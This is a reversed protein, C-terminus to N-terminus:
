GVFIGELYSILRDQDAPQSRYGVYGDPRVLYACEARAGFRTHLEAGPDRLPSGDWDLSAPPEAGPTVILTHVVEGYRARVARALRALARHGDPSAAHSTFLLLTHVTGQLIQLPAAQGALPHLARPRRRPRRPRPGSRLDRPRDARGRRPPPRAPLLPAVHEAVAPSSRYDLALGGLIAAAREEIMPLRGALGFLQDRLRQALPSRLGLARAAYRTAADTIGLTASAVPLREAQYSDLLSPRAKGRIVLALKWALNVADAMGMNMGQGGVPSHVHAADGALFVRGARYRPVIRHHFRFAVIWAPDEIVTGAPGRQDMLIRLNELTPDYVEEPSLLFLLRYRGEALVPLAAMAGRPTVFFLGEDAPAPFPWRIRIDAQLVCEEYTGGEFPIGLAKRVVSHAGDCGVLWPM